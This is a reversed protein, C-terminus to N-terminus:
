RYSLRAAYNRLSEAATEAASGAVGSNRPRKAERVFCQRRATSTVARPSRGEGYVGAHPMGLKACALCM